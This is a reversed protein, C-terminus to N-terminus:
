KRGWAMIVSYVLLNLSMLEVDNVDFLYRNMCYVSVFGVSFFLPFIWNGNM